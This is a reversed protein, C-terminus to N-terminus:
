RFPHMQRDSPTCKNYLLLLDVKFRFVPDVKM